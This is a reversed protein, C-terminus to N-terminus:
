MNTVRERMDFLKGARTRPSDRGSELAHTVGPARPAIVRAAHRHLSVHARTERGRVRRTEGGRRAAEVRFPRAGRNPPGTAVADVRGGFASFAM